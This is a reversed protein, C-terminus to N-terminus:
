PTSRARDEERGSRIRAKGEEDMFAEITQWAQALDLRAMAQALAHGGVEGLRATLATAIQEYVAVAELNGDRLLSDLQQVSNWELPAVTPLNPPEVAPVAARFTTLALELEQLQATMRDVQQELIAREVAGALEAIRTLGLTGAGGRLRHLRGTVMATQGQALGQRLDSVLTDGEAALRRLLRHLTAEDGGLR